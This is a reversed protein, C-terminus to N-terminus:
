FWKLHVTFVDEGVQQQKRLLHRAHRSEPVIKSSRTFDMTCNKMTGTEQTALSSKQM